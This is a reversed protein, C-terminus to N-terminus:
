YAGKAKIVVFVTKFIIKVDEWLSWNSMYQVDLEVRRSFSLDQRGSVQWLGSLGPKVTLILDKWQGYQGLEVVTMMRPGVLSMQGKLVNILQPIEDLSFKRLVFGIRTIRPDRKLKFNELFERNLSEDAALIKNADKVMTRFKYANFLGGNKGVVKRKHFVPGPTEFKILVPLIVFLPSFLLLGLIAGIVDMINKIYRSRKYNISKQQMTIALSQEQM